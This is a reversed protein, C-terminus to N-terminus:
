QSGRKIADLRERAFEFTALSEVFKTVDAQTWYPSGDADHYSARPAWNDLEDPKYHFPVGCFELRLDDASYDAENRKGAPATM